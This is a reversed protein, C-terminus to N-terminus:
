YAAHLFRQGFTAHAGKKSESVKATVSDLGISTSLDGMLLKSGEDSIRAYEQCVVHHMCDPLEAPSLAQVVETGEIVLASFEDSQSDHRRACGM